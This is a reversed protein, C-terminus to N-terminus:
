KNIYVVRRRRRKRSRTILRRIISILSLIVVVLIIIVIIGINSNFFGLNLEPDEQNTKGDDSGGGQSSSGSGSDSRPNNTVTIEFTVEQSPIGDPEGKVSKVLVKLKYDGLWNNGEPVEFIIPVTEISFEPIEINSQMLSVDIGRSTIDNENLLEIAFTDFYNGQNHVNLKCQIKGGPM